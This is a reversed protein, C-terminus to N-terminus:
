WGGPGPATIRGPGPATIGQEQHLPARMQQLVSLRARHTRHIMVIREGGSGKLTAHRRRSSAARGSSRRCVALKATPAAQRCPTAPGPRGTGAAPERQRCAKRREVTPRASIADGGTIAARLPEALPTTQRTIRRRHARDNRPAAAAAVAISAPCAETTAAAPERARRGLSLGGQEMQACSLAERRRTQERRLPLEQRTAAAAARAHAASPQRPAAASALATTRRACGQASVTMGTPAELVGVATAAKANVSVLATCRMPGSRHRGTCHQAIGACRYVAPRNRWRATPTRREPQLASSSMGGAARCRVGGPRRWRPDVLVTFQVHLAAVRAM